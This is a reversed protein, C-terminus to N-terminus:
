SGSLLAELGDADLLDDPRVVRGTPVYYFAAGVREVPVQAVRSWALRYVALQVADASTRGTKWDVVDYGDDTRYVADIRGRVVRDGLVLQFPAEVRHPALGAYPGRLFAEQLASLEEDDLVDDAAGALDTRDILPVVDFLSEVWAHFRTGRAAAPAPPRPMPRAIDRALGDPDRALRVVASASLSAPLPVELDVRYSSRAEDLLLAIDRDWGAVRAQDDAALAGVGVGPTAADFLTPPAAMAARVWQAADRRARLPAASLPAPWQLERSRALHPNREDTPAPAWTVVVGAGKECADRVQELYPSPGRQKVQTPGWWHGSAVLMEKARTVAVYALRLEELRDLEKIGDEYADLTKTSWDRPTPPFDSADGRLETPLTSAARTFRPRGKVGPFVGVSLDPLVVVPWELGKAKHV